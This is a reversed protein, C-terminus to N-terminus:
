NDPVYHFQIPSGLTKINVLLPVTRSGHLTNYLADMDKDIDYICDDFRVKRLEYHFHPGGDAWEGEIEEGSNMQKVMDKYADGFSEPSDFTYHVMAVLNTKEQRRRRAKYLPKGFIKEDLCTHLSTTM